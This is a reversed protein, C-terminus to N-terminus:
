LCSLSVKDGIEARYTNEKSNYKILVASYPVWIASNNNSDNLGHLEVNIKDENIDVIKGDVIQYISKTQANDQRAINEVTITYSFVMENEVLEASISKVFYEIDRYTVIEGLEIIKSSKFDCELSKEKFNKRITIVKEDIVVYNNINPKGITLKDDGNIFSFSLDIHFQNTIRKIFEWDTENNQLILNNTIESEARCDLVIGIHKNAVQKVLDTYTNNIDSFLCKNSESDLKFSTTVCEFIFDSKDDNTNFKSAKMIGQFLIENNNRNYLKIQTGEKVYNKESIKSELDLKGTVVMTGHENIERKIHLSEIELGEFPVLVLDQKTIQVTENM